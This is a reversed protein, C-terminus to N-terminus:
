RLWLGSDQWQVVRSSTSIIAAQSARVTGELLALAGDREADSGYVGFLTSGSGSLMAVLAGSELLQSKYGALVPYRPFVVREFDNAAWVAVDEWERPVARLAQTESYARAEDLWRYADATAIGFSPAIVIVPARPLAPLARLVEGRGTAHALTSGCLFFSVDSGLRAAMAFLDPDPLPGGHLDNLARLVAAADSSGGGLGAGAPIRKHLQISAGGSLGTTRFFEDAARWALNRDTPGVDANLVELATPRDTIEITLEDALDLACFLTDLPHYGTDDPAFICLWLNIKAPALITEPM